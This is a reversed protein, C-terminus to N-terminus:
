AYRSYDLGEQHGTHKAYRTDLLASLVLVRCERLDLIFPGKSSYATDADSITDSVFHHAPKWRMPICEDCPIAETESNGMCLRACPVLSTSLM